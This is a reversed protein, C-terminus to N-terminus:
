KYNEILNFTKVPRIIDWKGCQFKIITPLINTFVNRVIGFAYNFSNM